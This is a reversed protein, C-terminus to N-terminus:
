SWEEDRLAQTVIQTLLKVCERSCVQYRDDLDITIATELYLPRQCAPCTAQPYRDELAVSTWWRDNSLDRLASFFDDKTEM